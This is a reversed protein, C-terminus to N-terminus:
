FSLLKINSVNFFLLSIVFINVIQFWLKAAADAERVNIDKYFPLNERKVKEAGSERVGISRALRTLGSAMERVAVKVIEQGTFLLLVIM